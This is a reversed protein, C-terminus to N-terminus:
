FDMYQKFSCQMYSKAQRVLEEESIKNVSDIHMMCPVNNRADFTFYGEPRVWAFGGEYAFFAFEPAGPQLLNKSWTFGSYDLGLQAALVAPLDTQSGTKNVQTGKYEDKIVNGCLLMVIKHYDPSCFHHNRYTGHSHDSVLVFLTNDYWKKKQAETFFDKLCNDVYYASNVYKKEYQPWTFVEKMNCDYPSHSSITFIASFFPQPQKELENLFYPFTYEDHIGLKGRPFSSPFDSDEVLQDFGNYILYSKIGGYILQGGFYFSSYYGSEKFKQILGPLKKYKEPQQSMTTVSLSPFGSFLATMGEQSRTGSSYIHTFLIGNKELEHFAPTIGKEGGLSEILDASWGELIFMVINPKNTKLFMETTDNCSEYLQRVTRCADEDAYYHFPNENLLTYNDAISRGFNWASNVSIWNLAEHRSYYSQSQNIPVQSLGGRMGLFLLVPTLLIFLASFLYNKRTIIFPKIIIKLYIFYLLALQFIILASILILQWTQATGIIEQPHALYILAKYHLKTKWEGYIGAEASTIILIVFLIIFVYIKNIINLRTAQYFNQVALIFFPIIMIYCIASFDLPASHYFVGALEWFGIEKLYEM